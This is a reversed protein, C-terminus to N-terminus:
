IEQFAKTIIQNPLSKVDLLFNRASTGLFVLLGSKKLKYIYFITKVYVKFCLIKTCDAKKNNNKKYSNRRM